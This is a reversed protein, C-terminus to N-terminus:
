IRSYYKEKKDLFYLVKRFIIQKEKYLFNSAIDTTVVRRKTSERPGYISCPIQYHRLGVTSLSPCHTNRHFLTYSLPCATSPIREKFELLVSTLISSNKKCKGEQRIYGQVKAANESPYPHKRCQAM